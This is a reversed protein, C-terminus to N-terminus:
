QPPPGKQPNHHQPHQPPQGPPPPPPAIQRIVQQIIKDFKQQQEATCFAKVKQFHRFTVMDLQQQYKAAMAAAQQLAVESINSDGLQSFLQDKATRISDKINRVQQQHDNRLIEFQEQQQKNLRLENILFNGPGGAQLPMQPPPPPLTKVTWLIILTVINATCLIIVALAWWKNKSFYNM